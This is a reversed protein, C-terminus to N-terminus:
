RPVRGVHIHVIGGSLPFLRVEELGGERMSAALQSPDLFAAVTKSLYAYAASDGSLIRGVLPLVWNLYFRHLLGLIGSPRTLELSLVLGGPRVLRRMEKWLGQLDHINRPGFAITAADFPGELPIALVDGQVFHLHPYKQRAVELMGAAFDVGVVEGGPLVSRSLEQSLDGTGCCLDLVKQGPQLQLERVARRRWLVDLGLSLVRNLLDYRAHIRDFMEAIRGSALPPKSM